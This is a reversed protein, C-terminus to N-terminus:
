HIIEYEIYANTEERTSDGYVARGHGASGRRFGAIDGHVMGAFRKFVAEDAADRLTRATNEDRHLVQITMPTRVPGSGLQSGISVSEGETVIIRPEGDYDNDIVLNIAIYEKPVDIEAAVLAEYAIQSINM